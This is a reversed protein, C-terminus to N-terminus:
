ATPSASPQRTPCRTSSRGDALFVVTDATPQRTRTTPSWSSPRASTTWPRGCCRRPHGQRHAHRARRDARGRLDGRAQAILARAIAVRQQQGGSLEGPSTGSESARARRPRDGGHAVGRRAEAERTAAAAHHEAGRDAVARPQVVPLRLRHARPTAASRTRTSARRARRGGLQVTGSTPRDLGAACHLFTSKGSGSPGMVATFSGEALGLSLERLAAVSNDGSGYLKSVSSLRVSDTRRGNTLPSSSRTKM